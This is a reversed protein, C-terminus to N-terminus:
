EGLIKAALDKGVIPAQASTSSASLQEAVGLLATRILGSDVAEHSTAAVNAIAATLKRALGDEISAERAVYNLGVKDILGEETLVKLGRLTRQYVAGRDLGQFVDRRLIEEVITGANSGLPGLERVVQLVSQNGRVSRPNFQTLICEWALKAIRPRGM